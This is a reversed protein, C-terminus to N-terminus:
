MGCTQRQRGVYATKASALDAAAQAEPSLPPLAAFVTACAFSCLTFAIIKKM